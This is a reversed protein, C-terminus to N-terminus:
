EDCSFIMLLLPTYKMAGSELLSVLVRFSFSSGRCMWLIFM